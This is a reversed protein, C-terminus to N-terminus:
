LKKNSPEKRPDIQLAQSAPLGTADEQEAPSGVRGEDPPLAMTPKALTGQEERICVGAELFCERSETTVESQSDDVTGPSFPIM